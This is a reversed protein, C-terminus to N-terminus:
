RTSADWEALQSRQIEARSAFLSSAHVSNGSEIQDGLQARRVKVLEFWISVAEDAPWIRALMCALLHLALAEKGSTAAAWVTTGDAGVHAKHAATGQPNSVPSGSIESARHGYAAFLKPTSPIEGDFLAALKRATIHSSGDEADRRRLKTLSHGVGLYEAPAEVKLLSFDFNFTALSAQIEPNLSFASAIIKGFSAMRVLDCLALSLSLVDKL